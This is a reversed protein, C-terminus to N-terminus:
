ELRLLFSALLPHPPRAFLHAPLDDQDSAGISSYAILGRQFQRTKARLDDKTHNLFSIKRLSTVGDPDNVCLSM